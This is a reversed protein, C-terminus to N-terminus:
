RSDELRYFFGLVIGLAEFGLPRLPFWMARLVFFADLTFGLWAFVDVERARAELAALDAFALLEVACFIALGRVAAASDAESFALGTFAFFFRALAVALGLDDPLCPAPLFAAAAVDGPFAAGAFFAAAVRFAAGLFFEAFAEAGL